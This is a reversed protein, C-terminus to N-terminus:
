KIIMECIVNEAIHSRMSIAYPWLHMCFLLCGFKCVDKAVKADDDEAILSCETDAYVFLKRVLKNKATTSNLYQM